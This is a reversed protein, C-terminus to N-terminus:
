FLLLHQSANRHTAIRWVINNRIKVIFIHYFLSVHTINALDTFVGFLSLTCNTVSDCPFHATSQKPGEQNKIWTGRSDQNIIRGPSFPRSAIKHWTRCHVKYQISETCFHLLDRSHNSFIFCLVTQGKHLLVAWTLLFPTNRWKLLVNFLQTIKISQQSQLINYSAALKLDCILDTAHIKVRLQSTVRPMKVIFATRWIKDM